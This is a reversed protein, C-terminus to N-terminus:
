GFPHPKKQKPYSQLTPIDTPKEPFLDKMLKTSKKKNEENSSHCNSIILQNIQQQTLWKSCYEDNKNDMIELFNKIFKKHDIINMEIAQNNKILFLTQTNKLFIYDNEYRDNKITEGSYNSTLYFPLDDLWRLVAGHPDETGDFKSFWYSNRTKDYAHDKTKKNGEKILEASPILKSSYHLQPTHSTKNQSALNSAFGVIEREKMEAGALFHVGIIYHKFIMVEPNTLLFREM